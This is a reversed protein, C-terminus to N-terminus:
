VVLCICFPDMQWEAQEQVAAGKIQMIECRRGVSRRKFSFVPSIMFGMKKAPIKNDNALSKVM